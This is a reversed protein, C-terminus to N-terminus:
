GLRAQRRQPTRVEVAVPVPMVEPEPAPEPAVVDGGMMRIQRRKTTAAAKSSLLTNAEAEETQKGAIQAKIMKLIEARLDGDNDEAEEGLVTMAEEGYVTNTAIIKSGLLGLAQHEVTGRYSLFYGRVPKDQIPRYGRAMAQVMTTLSYNPEYFVYTPYMVLDLGTEVKQPNVILVDHRKYNDKIWRERDLTGVNDPLCEGTIRASKLISLLRDRIDRTGTQRVYLLVKRDQSLERRILNILTIEKPLLDDSKEDIIAPLKCWVEYEDPRGHEDKKGRRAPNKWIVTEDRFASNPRSLSNQLWVSLLAQAKSMELSDFSSMWERIRDLMGDHMKVYQAAQDDQMRLHVIQDKYEPLKFGMDSLKLFITSPLIHQYIAPSVGPKERVSTVSLNKTGYTSKDKEPERYIYELRGFQETWDSVANHAFAERVRMDMRYRMYFLNSSKGGFMTGTLNLQYKTAVVLDNFASGQLTDGGNFKHSEDAIFLKFFHRMHQRIYQAVPWRKIENTYATLPTGCGFDKNFKKHNREYGGCYLHGKPWTTMPSMTKRDFQIRGCHPCVPVRQGKKLTGNGYSGTRTIIRENFPKDKRPGLKSSEISCLVFLKDGQKHTAKLQELQRIKLVRTRDDDEDLSIIVVKALPIMELIEEKWKRVLHGPCLVFAPTSGLMHTIAIAIKTKGCGPDASIDCFDLEKLTRVAAIAAHKQADMLSPKSQGPLTRQPVLESAAAWEAATPTGDYRPVFRNMVAAAIDGIHTTIFENCAKPDELTTLKGSSRDIHTIQNSFSEVARTIDKGDKGVDEGAANYYTMRKAIQGKLFYQPTTLTGIIGSAILGAVHGTRLKMAPQFEITRPNRFEHWAKSSLVGQKSALTILTEADDTHSNFTQRTAPMPPLTYEGNGPPLMQLKAYDLEMLLTKNRENNEANIGIRTTFIVVQDFVDAAFDEAPLRYMAEIRYPQLRSILRDRKLISAPLVMAVIGGNVTANTVASLMSEEHRLSKQDDRRSDSDWDYPPNYLTFSMMQSVSCDLVPSYLVQDIVSRATEARAYSLEIGYSRVLQGKEALAALHKQIAALAAGDGCTPDYIYVTKNHEIRLHQAIRTVTNVPTPYYGLKSQGELRM